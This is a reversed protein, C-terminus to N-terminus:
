FRRDEEISDSFVTEECEVKGQPNVLAVTDLPVVFNLVGIIKGAEFSRGGRPGVSVAIGIDAGSELKVENPFKWEGQESVLRFGNLSQPELTLNRVEIEHHGRAKQVEFIAFKTKQQTIKPPPIGLRKCETSVLLEYAKIQWRLSLEADQIAKLRLRAKVKYRAIRHERNAGGRELKEIESDYNSRLKELESGYTDIFIQEAFTAELKLANEQLTKIQDKLKKIEAEHKAKLEEIKVDAFPGV